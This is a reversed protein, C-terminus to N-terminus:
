ERCNNFSSYGKDGASCIKQIRGIEDESLFLHTEKVSDAWIMVLQDILVQNRDVAKIIKM